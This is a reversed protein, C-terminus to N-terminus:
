SQKFIIKGLFALSYGTIIIGFAIYYLRRHIKGTLLYLCNLALGIGSFFVGFSILLLFTEPKESEILLGFFWSAGILLSFASIIASVFFNLYDNVKM